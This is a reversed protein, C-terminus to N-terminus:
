AFQALYDLLPRGMKRAFVENMSPISGSPEDLSIREVRNMPFFVTPLGIREGDPQNIQRIFHDFSNLDIGRVTIGSPNIALLEGWVKEKPTHLSVVVISHTDMSQPVRKPSLTDANYRTAGLKESSVTKQAPPRAQSKRFGLQDFPTADRFHMIMFVFSAIVTIGAIWGLAAGTKRESPNMPERDAFVKGLGFGAALGGFHAWNDVGSMVFGLVFITVVWSVLRGRLERMMGGSRKTTIAIMLGILGLLAGSAGVSISRGLWSSLVFGTVGTAVYLFLYRASGYVDEVVPGVDMLIMMNFGIHILGGHLFMATVLRWWTWYGSFMPVSAGLRYTPEGGMGWLISLGAGGGESMTRMLTVAFMLINMVLLITTVPARGGFIGSLSKNLAAFSFRLSAGCEHCRTASVGVLTGCAPCIKPRPVDDGGFFGRLSNKFKDIRWQWKYPLAM